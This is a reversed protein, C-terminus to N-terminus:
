SLDRKRRKDQEARAQKKWEERANDSMTYKLLTLANRLVAEQFWYMHGNEM